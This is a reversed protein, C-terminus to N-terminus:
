SDVTNWVTHLLWRSNIYVLSQEQLCRRSQREFMPFTTVSFRIPIQWSQLSCSKFVLWCCTEVLFITTFLFIHIIAQPWSCHRFKRCWIASSLNGRARLVQEVTYSSIWFGFISPIMFIVQRDRHIQPQCTNQDIKAEIRHLCNPSCECSRMWWISDKVM